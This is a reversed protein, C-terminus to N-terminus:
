DSLFDILNTLFDPQSDNGWPSSELMAHGERELPDGPRRYVRAERRLRLREAQARRAQSLGGKRIWHLIGELEGLDLWVGHRPCIDLIIGSRREFNRRSMHSQCAPCVRYSPRRGASRPVAPQPKLWSIERETAQRQLHDFLEHGLWIGACGACELVTVAGDGLNRSLLPPSDSCAPCRLQSAQGAAAQPVIPLGCAHCFRAEDTIRTFCGPCITHLDREHLTFDTGCFRCNKGKERRPGGCSSCRVVRADHSRMRPVAILQGCSCHFRSGVALSTVDYQLRCEPCAILYRLSADQQTPGAPSSRDEM